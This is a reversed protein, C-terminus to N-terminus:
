KPLDGVNVGLAACLQVLILTEQNAYDDQMKKYKEVGDLDASFFSGMKAQSALSWKQHMDVLQIALRNATEDDLHPAKLAASAKYQQGQLDIQAKMRGGYESREDSRIGKTAIKVMDATLQDSAGNFQDEIQKMAVFLKKFKQVDSSDPKKTPEAQDAIAEKPPTTAAKDDSNFVAIWFCMITLFLGAVLKDKKTLKKSKAEEHETPQKFTAYTGLAFVITLVIFILQM